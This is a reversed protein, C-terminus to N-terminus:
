KLNKSEEVFKETKKKWEDLPLSAIQRRVNANKKSIYSLHVVANKEDKARIM